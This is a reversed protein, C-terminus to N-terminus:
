RAKMSRLYEFANGDFRSFVFIINDISKLNLCEQRSIWKPQDERFLQWLENLRELHAGSTTEDKYFKLQPLLVGSAAATNNTVATAAGTSM